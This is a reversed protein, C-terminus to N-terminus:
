SPLDSAEKKETEDVIERVIVPEVSSQYGHSDTAVIVYGEPIADNLLSENVQFYIRGEVTQHADLRIPPSLEVGTGPEFQVTESISSPIKVTMRLREPTLYTLNMDLYAISNNIDSPNSVSLLFAYVRYGEPERILRVYGDVLYLALSPRRREEQAATLTLMRKSSRASSYAFFAAVAAVLAAVLAIMTETSLPELKFPLSWIYEAGGGGNAMSFTSPDKVIAGPGAPFADDNGPAEFMRGVTESARRVRECPRACSASARSALTPASGRSKGNREM